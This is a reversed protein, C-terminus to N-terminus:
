TAAHQRRPDAYPAPPELGVLKRLILLQGAHQAEHLVCQLLQDARTALDPYTPLVHAPRAELDEPTLVDLM